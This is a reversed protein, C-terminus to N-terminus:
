EFEFAIKIAGSNGRRYTLLLAQRYEELPFRHTVMWGLDTVGRSLLDIALDFTKWRHGQFPEVHHYLYAARVQLEHAFIPTWDIQRTVGSVSVLIVRGQNRTLRLADDLSRRTGVCEFVLDMGGFLVKEGLLTRKLNGGTIAAIDEYYKGAGDAKLVRTAGLKEAAQGQFPHRALVTIEARSGLARLAALTCLGITGAGIILVRQDDAPFNQLTAHLGISFPEVMLANQDSMHPPIRYLQSRHALFYPAWSGGTDRCTGISVGAALIGRDQRECHNIEGRACSPCLDPFGRPACWLTPEVVVRDGIEWGDAAAGVQAIQGANEHGLVFPYSGLPSLYPSATLGIISTDTGCIGGLRTKVVVWEEGPLQPEPIDTYATCTLGSWYFRPSIKGLLLGIAYRPISLNFQIAKM